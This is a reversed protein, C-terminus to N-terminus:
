KAVDKWNEVVITITTDSIIDLILNPMTNGNKDAFESEWNGRTIKYELLYDNELSFFGQWSGDPNEELPVADAQWSGISPHNGTIYITSNPPLFKPIVIFDIKSRSIEKTPDIYFSTIDANKGDLLNALYENTLIPLPYSLALQDERYVESVFQELPFSAQYLYINSYGKGELMKGLSDPSSAFLVDINDSKCAAITELFGMKGLDTACDTIILPHKDNSFLEAAIIKEDCNEFDYVAWCDDCSIRAMSIISLSIIGIYLLPYLIKGKSIKRGLFWSVLIIIGIFYVSHYRWTVSIFRHGIIDYLNFFIIGPITILLIYWKVKTSAKRLLFVLSTIIFGILLINIAIATALESTYSSVKFYSYVGEFSDTYSFIHAMGFWPGLLVEWIGPDGMQWSLAGKIESIHNIIFFLWPTYVLLAFLNSVVVRMRMEKYFVWVYFFHGIIIIGTLSSVYLAFISAISYLFWSKVTNKDLAKLILLHMLLISFIWLIYYRSDQAYNHIFPSVAFLSTAIWATLRSGSLKKTILYLMPLSLIFMLITFLRYDLQDAGIVPHWFVLLVYHFPTFQPMQSLGKIQTGISYEGNNLNLMDNYYGINVITDAPFKDWFVGTEMGSTHFITYIEDLWFFRSELGYFKFVVGILIVIFYVIPQKFFQKIINM